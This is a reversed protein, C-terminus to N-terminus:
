CDSSIQFEDDDSLISSSLSSEPSFDVDSSSDSDSESCTDYGDLQTIKDHM